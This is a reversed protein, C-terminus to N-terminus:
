DMFVTGLVAAVRPLAARKSLARLRKFVTFGKEIQRRRPLRNSVLSLARQGVFLM